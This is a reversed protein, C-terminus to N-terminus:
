QIREIYNRLDDPSQGKDIMRDIMKKINNEERIRNGEAVMGSPDVRSRMADTWDNIAIWEYQEDALFSFKQYRGGSQPLGRVYSDFAASRRRAALTNRRINLNIEEIKRTCAEPTRYTSNVAVFINKALFQWCDHFAMFHDMEHMFCWYIREPVSLKGRGVRVTMWESWRDAGDQWKPDAHPVLKATIMMSFSCGVLRHGVSVKERFVEKISAKFANPQGAFGDLYVCGFGERPLGAQDGCKLQLHLVPSKDEDFEIHDISEQVPYGKQISELTPIIPRKALIAQQKEDNTLGKAAELKWRRIQDVVYAVGLGIPMSM